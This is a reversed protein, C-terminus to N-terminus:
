YGLPERSTHRIRLIRIENKDFVIQYTIRYNYVSFARFNPDLKTKLKDTEFILPSKSILKINALVTKKVLKPAIDSRGSLYELIEQFEILAFGDWIIAMQKSKVM